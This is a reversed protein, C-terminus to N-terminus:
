NFKLKSVTVFKKGDKESTVGTVEGPKSDSCIESHYQKNTKDDFFYVVDKGSEKVVIVSACRKTLELECKACTIKGKLLVEKGKEKGKDQADVSGNIWIGLSLIVLLLSLCVKM